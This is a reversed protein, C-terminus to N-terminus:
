KNGANCSALSSFIGEIEKWTRTTPAGHKCVHQQLRRRHGDAVARDIRAADTKIIHTDPLWDPHQGAHMDHM